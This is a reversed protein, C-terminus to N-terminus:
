TIVSSWCGIWFGTGSATLDVGGIMSSARRAAQGAAPLALLPRRNGTPGPGVPMALFPAERGFM